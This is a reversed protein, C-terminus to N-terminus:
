LEHYSNWIGPIFPEQQCAQVKFLILSLSNKGHSLVNMAVSNKFTLWLYKGLSSIITCYPFSLRSTSLRCALCLLNSHQQLRGILNQALWSIIWYKKNLMERTTFRFENMCTFCDSLIVVFNHQAVQGFRLANNCRLDHISEKKYAFCYLFIRVWM